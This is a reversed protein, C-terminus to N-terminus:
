ATFILLPYTLHKDFYPFRERLGANIFDCKLAYAYDILLNNGKCRKNM